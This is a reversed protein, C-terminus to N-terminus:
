ERGCYKIRSAKYIGQYYRADLNFSMGTYCNKPYSEVFAASIEDVQDRSANEPLPPPDVGLKIQQGYKEYLMKKDNMEQGAWMDVGAEIMAPVLPENKGCCHFEFGIGRKHASEVVRKLYPVVMEMCTDLSFLPARQSGWDDHFWLIDPKYYHSINELLEDYFIALRDFLRKVGEQEEEDIMAVLANEMDVFSILREFFGTFITTQVVRDDRLYDQNKKASGEWDLKDLDPFEIFDEWRAIDEVRPSGPRVMAGRVAPVFEWEIGFYDKNFLSEPPHAGEEAVMGRAVNDVMLSPNFMKFEMFSPMWLPEQGSLFLKLNEKPTIPTSLVPTGPVGRRHSPYEGKVVMESENFPIKM